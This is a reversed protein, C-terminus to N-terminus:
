RPPRCSPRPPTWGCGTSRTPFVPTGVRVEEDKAASPAPSPGGTDIAVLMQALEAWNPNYLGAFAM